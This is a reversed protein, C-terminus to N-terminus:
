FGFEHAGKPAAKPLLADGISLGGEEVMARVEKDSRGVKVKTGQDDPLLVHVEDLGIGEDALMASSHTTILVQRGSKVHMRAMMGPLRRVLSDHLSLEPEELLLPGGGEALSWLLGILRLVGDSFAREYQKATVCGGTTSVPKWIRAGAIM